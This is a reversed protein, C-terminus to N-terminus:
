KCLKKEFNEVLELISDYVISDLKALNPNALGEEGSSITWVVPIGAGMAYGGALYIEPELITIDAIVLNCAAFQEEESDEGLTESWNNWLSPVYGLQELMPFFLEQWLEYENNQRSVIVICRKQKRHKSRSAAVQWGQETLMFSSGERIILQQHSLRDIIYILEQLNPSYTLNYSNSLPHIVVAEGAQKCNMYLYQLLRYGKEEITVPIQSATIINEIEDANLLVKKGQDTNERIFASILHFWDHKRQYPFSQFVEYSGKQLAYMGDPSCLCGIYLENREEQKVVVIEECFLCQKKMM